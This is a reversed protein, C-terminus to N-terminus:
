GWEDELEVTNSGATLQYSGVLSTAWTETTVNTLAAEVTAAGNVSVSTYKDGYPASYVISIDYLGASLGNVNFTLADSPDEWNTVYGTGSYGAVDTAVVLDGTITADEAEFITASAIGLLLTLSSFSRM